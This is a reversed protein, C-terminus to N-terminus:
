PRSSPSDIEPGPKAVAIVRVVDQFEQETGLPRVGVHEVRVRRKLDVAVEAAGRRDGLHEHLAVRSLNAKQRRKGRRPGVTADGSQSRATPELDVQRPLVAPELARADPRQTSLWEIDPAPLRA